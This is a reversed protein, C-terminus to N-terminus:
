ELFNTSSWVRGPCCGGIMLADMDGNYGNNYPMAHRVGSLQVRHNPKM